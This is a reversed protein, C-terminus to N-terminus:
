GSSAVVSIRLPPDANVLIADGPRVKAGRRTETSGNLHVLGERILHKAEGGSGVVGALKLAAALAIYETDLQITTNM